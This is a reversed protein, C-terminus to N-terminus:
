LLKSITGNFNEFSFDFKDMMADVHHEKFKSAIVENIGASIVVIKGGYGSQRIFPVTKTFNSYPPLKNDLLLLEPTNDQLHTLAEDLSVAHSLKVDTNMAYCSFLEHIMDNDDVVLVKHM